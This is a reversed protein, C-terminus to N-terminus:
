ESSDGLENLFEDELSISSTSISSARDLLIADKVYKTLYTTYKKYNREISKCKTDFDTDSVQSVKEYLLVGINEDAEQISIGFYKDSKMNISELKNRDYGYAEEMYKYYVEEDTTFIPSENERHKNHEWSKSIVGKDLPFKQNHVSNYSQNQSYRALLTFEEDDEYYITLREYTNIKCDISIMKLWTRVVEEHKNLLEAQLKENDEKTDDLIHRLKDITKIENELEKNKDKLNKNDKANGFIGIFLVIIGFILLVWNNFIFAQLGHGSNWLAKSAKIDNSYDGGMAIFLTGLGTAILYINHHIVEAINFFIKSKGEYGFKQEIKDL